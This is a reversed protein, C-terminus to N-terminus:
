WLVCPLRLQDCCGRLRMSSHSCGCVSPPLTCAPSVMFSRRWKCHHHAPGPGSHPKLSSMPLPSTVFRCHLVRAFLLARTRQAKPLARQPCCSGRLCAGPVDGSQGLAAFREHTHHALPSVCMYSYRQDLHQVCLLYIPHVLRASRVRCDQGTAFSACTPCGQM